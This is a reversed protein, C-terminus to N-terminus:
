LNVRMVLAWESYNTRTLVPYVIAASSKEIVREIVVGRGASHGRPRRGMLSPSPRRRPPPSRAGDGDHSDQPSRTSM